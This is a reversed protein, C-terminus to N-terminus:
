CCEQWPDTASCLETIMLEIRVHLSNRKRSVKLIYNESFINM